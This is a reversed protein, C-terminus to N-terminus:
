KLVPTQSILEFPVDVVPLDFIDVKHQPKPVYDLTNKFFEKDRYLDFDYKALDADSVYIYRPPKVVNTNEYSNKDEVGNHYVNAQKNKDYVTDEDTM